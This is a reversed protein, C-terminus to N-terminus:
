LNRRKNLEEIVSKPAVKALEVICANAKENGHRIYIDCLAYLQEPAGSILYAKEFSAIAVTVDIDQHLVGNLYWYYSNNNALSTAITMSEAASKKQKLRVQTLAKAYYLSADKSLQKTAKNLVVLAEEDQDQARYNDSLNLWIQSNQPDRIVLQQYIVDAKKWDGHWRYADAMLLQQEPQHQLYAVLNQYPAEMKHKQDTSMASYNRLLNVTAARRVSLEPDNLLPALLRWRHEFKYLNAGTIAAQRLVPSPEKLARAVAVLSNQNPYQALQRLAEARKEITENKNQAIYALQQEIPMNQVQNAATADIAAYSPISFSLVGMLGIVAYKKITNTM